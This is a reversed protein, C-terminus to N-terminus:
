LGRGVEAALVRVEEPDGGDLLWDRPSVAVGGIVLESQPTQFFGMVSRPHLGPEFAGLVTALGPVVATLDNVFQWGPFRTKGDAVFGYLKGEARYHRITSARLGLQDAVQEATLAVVSAVAVETLSRRDALRGLEVSEPTGAVPTGSYRNWLQQEAESLAVTAAGRRAGILLEMSAVVDHESWAVGSDALYHQLTLETTASTM